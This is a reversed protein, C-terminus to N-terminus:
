LALLYFVTLYIEFITLSLWFDRDRPKYRKIKPRATATETHTGFFNSMIGWFQFIDHTPIPWFKWRLVCHFVCLGVFNQMAKQNRNTQRKQCEKRVFNGMTLITTSVIKKIHILHSMFTSIHYITRTRFPPQQLMAPFSNHTFAQYTTMLVNWM